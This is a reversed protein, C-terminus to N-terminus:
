HLQPISAVLNWPINEPFTTSSMRRFITSISLWKQSGNGWVGRHNEELEGSVQESEPYGHRTEALARARPILGHAAAPLARLAAPAGFVSVRLLSRFDFSASAGFRMLILEPSCRQFVLPPPSPRRHSRLMQATSIPAGGRGDEQNLDPGSDYTNSGV